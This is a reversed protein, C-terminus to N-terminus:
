ALDIHMMQDLADAVDQGYDYHESIYTLMKEMTKACKNAAGTGVTFVNHGLADCAGKTLKSSTNNKNHHGRQGNSRGGSRGGRGFGRGRGQYGRASLQSM